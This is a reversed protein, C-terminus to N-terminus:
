RSLRDVAKKAANILEVSEPDQAFIEDTEFEDLFDWYADQAVNRAVNINKELCVALMYKSFGRRPHNPFTDYFRQYAAQQRTSRLTIGYVWACKLQLSAAWTKHPRACAYDEMSRVGWSSLLFMPVIIFFVIAAIWPLNKREFFAM